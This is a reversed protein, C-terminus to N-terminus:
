QQIGLTSQTQVWGRRGRGLVVDQCNGNGEGGGDHLRACQANMHLKQINSKQLFTLPSISCLLRTRRHGPHLSPLCAKEWREKVM